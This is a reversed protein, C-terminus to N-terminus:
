LTKVLIESQTGRGVTDSLQYVRCRLTSLLGGFDTTQDAASYVATATVASITRKVVGAGDLIEIEYRESSEGLAVEAGTTQLENDIRSRRLWSIVIDGADIVADLGVPSYPLLTRFDATMDYVTSVDDILQNNSVGKIYLPTNYQTPQLEVFKATPYYGIKEDATHSGTYHETGFRGRLLTSLRYTNAAILTVDAAQVMEDGIFFLNLTQDALLDDVTVSVLQGYNVVIDVHNDRDILQAPADPLADVAHGFIARASLRVLFEYNVTDFSYYLDTYYWNAPSEGNTMLFVGPKNHTSTVLPANFFQFTTNTVQATEPKVTVFEAGQRASTLAGKGYSHASIKLVGNAGYDVAKIMMTLWKSDHEVQVVDGPELYLYKPGLTFTYSTREQWAGYLYVESLQAAATPTMALPLSMTVENVARPNNARSTQPIRDHDRSPDIVDITVSSPLTSEDARIILLASEEGDEDESTYRLDGVPIQVVVDNIRGLFKIKDDSYVSVAQSAQVVASLGEIIKGSPTAFGLFESTINAIYFDDTEMGIRRCIDEIILSGAVPNAVNSIVGDGNNLLEVEIVPMRSYFASLNFNEFYLVVTDRYSTPVAVPLVQDPEGYYPTFAGHVFEIQPEGAVNAYVLQKDMWIKGIGTIKGRCLQVVMDCEYTYTYETTTVTYSDKGTSQRVQDTHRHEIERIDSRWVLNAPMRVRGYIIPINKGYGSGSGTSFEDNRQGRYANNVDEPIPRLAYQIAAVAVSVVVSVVLGIVAETM